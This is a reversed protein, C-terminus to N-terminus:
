KEWPHKKATGAGEQPAPSQQTDNNNSSPTAPQNDAPITGQALAIHKKIKNQMTKGTPDRNDKTMGIDLKLPINHLQGSDQLEMVGCAVCIANLSRKAIQEAQQSKNELNLNEFIKRGKFPGEQIINYQLKLYSGTNNDNPLYDSDEIVAIYEGVPIPDFLDEQADNADAKYNGMDAM